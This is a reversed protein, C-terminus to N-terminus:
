RSPFKPAPHVIRVIVIPELNMEESALRFSCAVVSAAKVSVPGCDRFLISYSVSSHPDYLLGNKSYNTFEKGSIHRLRYYKLVNKYDAGLWWVNLMAHRISNRSIGGTSALIQSHTLKSTRIACM